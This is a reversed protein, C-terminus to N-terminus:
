TVHSWNVRRKIMSILTQNVGYEAAIEKQLREDQRIKRVQEETLKVRGNQEGKSPVQRGKANMDAINEIQTGLFLHDLNICPPNDCRHLVCMGDPIAGRAEEWAARHTTVMKFGVRIHGYGDDKRCGMWEICGTDPNPQSRQALRLSVSIRSKSM